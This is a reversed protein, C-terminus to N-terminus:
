MDTCDEFAADSPLAIPQPDVCFQDTDFVTVPQPRLLKVPFHIVHKRNLLLNCTGDYLFERNGQLLIFVNLNSLRWSFALFRVIGVQFTVVEPVDTLQSFTENHGRLASSGLALLREKDQEDQCGVGKLGAFLRRFLFGFRRYGRFSRKSLRANILFVPIDSEQAKWLFNPWIEAEVLVIGDPHITRMARSVAARFDIPYYVKGIHRPLKKELEEMGTSTTTSVIIKANPLRPELARILHTCINVEGVSVAHVWLVHSNTVSQKVKSDYRGFRQGFGRRWNGRRWMKLFYFPASLVFFTTFLINYILRMAKAGSEAGGFPLLKSGTRV